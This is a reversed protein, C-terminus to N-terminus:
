SLIRLNVKDYVQRMVEVSYDAYHRGIVSQPIRGCLADIYHSPVGKKALEVNFWLRLTKLTINLGTKKRADHFIYSDRGNSYPFLRRSRTKRTKLYEKLVQLAEDNCFTIFSHKTKSGDHCKPIILGTELDIDDLTLSLLEKRRLGSSCAVLFLAKEKLSDLANYFRRLEDITPCRKPKYIQSPYKFGDLLHERGIYKFLHKLSALHNRYCSVSRTRKINLLYDRVQEKTVLYPNGVDNIFQRAYQIHQKV